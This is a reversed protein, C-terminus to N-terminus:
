SMREILFKTSVFSPDAFGDKADHLMVIGRFHLNGFDGKYEENHPYCAGAIIGLRMTGDIVPQIAVELTQKHGVCFSAGVNKLQSQANGGYPKGNMPNALYHVFNIGQINVPKLFDHVEWDKELELLHYGIFGDFESNNDAIRKLRCNGTFHCKGNRRIFFNENKVNMCWVKGNYSVQKKVLGDQKRYKRKVLNVRWQNERYETLSASWGHLSAAIQVDECIKKQGYFVRSLKAKSPITGDADILVELFTDWQADSLQSVWSPLTKNSKVGISELEPCKRLYFEVSKEPKSKLTKGCIETIDRDRTRECYPINLQDLLERMKWANSERQYLTPVGTESFYSDTCLWGAMQIQEKSLTVGEENLSSASIIKFHEKMDSSEKVTLKNSSSLYYMRHGPTNLSSFSRSEYSHLIGEYDKDFILDPKNWEASLDDKLTLVQDTETIETYKKFGEKTLVESDETLCEHNGLTFVLRPNYDRHVSQYERLPGLLKKMGEKGAEIDKELRRGEFSLKGKDYSSLSEFDFFDGINVIVDPKKDVIYQGIAELYTTDIGPKVQCDPIFMIKLGEKPKSYKKLIGRVTSEKTTSGFVEDAITRNPVRAKHLELVHNIVEQSHKM